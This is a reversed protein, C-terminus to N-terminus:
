AAAFGWVHPAGLQGSWWRPRWTSASRAPSAAPPPAAGPHGLARRAAAPPAPLLLLERWGSIRPVARRNGVGAACTPAELLLHLLVRLRQAALRTAPAAGGRAAARGGRSGDCAGAAASTSGPTDLRREGYLLGAQFAPTSTPAPGAHRDRYPGRELWAASPAARLRAGDRAGAPQAVGDLLIRKGSPLARQAQRGGGAVPRLVHRVIRSSVPVPATFVVGGAAPARAAGSFPLTGGRAYAQRLAATYLLSRVAVHVAQKAPEPLRQERAKERLAEAAGRSRDGEGGRGVLPASIPALRENGNM